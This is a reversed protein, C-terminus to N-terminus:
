ATGIFGLVPVLVGVAALVVLATSTATAARVARPRRRLLLDEADFRARRRISATRM